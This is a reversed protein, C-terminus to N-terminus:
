DAPQSVPDSCCPRAVSDFRWVKIEILAVASGFRPRTGPHRRLRWAGIVGAFPDAATAALGAFSSSVPPPRM